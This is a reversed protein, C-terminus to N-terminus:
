QPAFMPLFTFLAYFISLWLIAHIAVALWIAWNNYGGLERMTEIRKSTDTMKAEIANKQSLYTKYVYYPALGGTGIWVIFGGFPVFSSLISIVFLLFAPMYAKRYLLYFIGGFFAWWSWVWSLKEVGNVNYKRFANEYWLTVEPKNVFAEVMKNEYDDMSNAANTVPPM